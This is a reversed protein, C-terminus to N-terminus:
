LRTRNHWVAAGGALALVHPLKKAFVWGFIVISVLWIVTNAILGALILHTYGAYGGFKGVTLPFGFPGFLDCCPPEVVKYSYINAVVFFLLSLSFGISFLKRSM